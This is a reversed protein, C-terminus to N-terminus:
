PTGILHERLSEVSRCHKRCIGCMPEHGSHYWIRMYEVLHEMKNFQRYCAACKNRGPISACHMLMTACGHKRTRKNAIVRMTVKEFGYVLVWPIYYQISAGLVEM